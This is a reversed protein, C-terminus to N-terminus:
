RLCAALRPLHRQRGADAASRCRRPARRQPLRQTRRIGRAGSPQAEKIQLFLPDQGYRGLFLAIWARTGVSGVGVVKRAFDVYQYRELLRRRDTELTRRYERPHGHLWESFQSALDPPLLEAVRVILPPDSLIQPEGDVEHTLRDFAQMSDRTRAKAITKDTRKVQKAPFTQRYKALTEEIDLSAYFVALNTQAAFEAIAGRYASVVERVITDRQSANFNRDRAAVEFSAALRKIDWEFPGPATEDFDNTDFVLRREPTGFGGFNSLHADGCLQV